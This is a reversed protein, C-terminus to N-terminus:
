CLRARVDEIRAGVRKLVDEVEARVITDLQRRTRALEESTSSTRSMSSPAVSASPGISGYSVSSQLDVYDAISPTAENLDDM